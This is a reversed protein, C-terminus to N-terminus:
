GLPRLMNVQWRATQPPFLGRPRRAQCRSWIGSVGTLLPLGKGGADGGRNGRIRSTTRPQAGATAHMPSPLTVALGGPRGAKESGLARHEQEGLARGIWASRAGYGLRARGRRTELGSKIRRSRRQKARWVRAGSSGAPRRGALVGLGAGGDDRDKLNRSKDLGTPGLGAAAALGPGM